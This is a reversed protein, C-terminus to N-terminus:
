QDTFFRILSAAVDLIFGRFKLAVRMHELSKVGQACAKFIDQVENACKQTAIQFFLFRSVLCCGVFYLPSVEVRFTCPTLM